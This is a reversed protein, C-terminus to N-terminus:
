RPLLGRLVLDIAKATREEGDIQPKHLGLHTVMLLALLVTEADAERALEGSAHARTVVPQLVAAFRTRLGKFAAYSEDDLPLEMTLRAFLAHHEAGRQVLKAIVEALPAGPDIHDASNDIEREFVALALDMRNRFNRYLTGRGVGARDAIDELPVLFGSEAFCASAAVILAERRERADRRIKPGKEM